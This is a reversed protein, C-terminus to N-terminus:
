AELRVLVDPINRDQSSLNEKDEHYGASMNNGFCSQEELGLSRGLWKLVHCVEGYRKVAVENNADILSANLKDYLLWVQRENPLTGLTSEARLLMDIAETHRGHDLCGGVITSFGVWDVHNGTEALTDTMEAFYTLAKDILGVQLCTQMLCTFVFLGPKIHDARMEDLLAFSKELDGQKQYIKALISYTVNSPKIRLKKMNAYCKLAMKDQNAKLCGDLLSNYLVEDAKIGRELMQNHLELAKEIDKVRCYGKILTSFTILDPLVSGTMM